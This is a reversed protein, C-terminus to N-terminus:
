ARGEMRDIERAHYFALRARLRMSRVRWDRGAREQRRNAAKAWLLAMTRAREASGELLRSGGEQPRTM